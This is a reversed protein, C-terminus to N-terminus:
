RRWQMSTSFSYTSLNKEEMDHPSGGRRYYEQLETDWVQPILEDLTMLYGGTNRLLIETMAM